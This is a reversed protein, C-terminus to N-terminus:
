KKIIVSENDTIGEKIEIDTDTEIGTKVDKKIIKNDDTKVLVYKTNNDSYVAEIPVTLTNKSESLIIKADGDMGIRYKLDANKDTGPIEFKVQYVTSSEGSIPTFAIYTIKSDIKEDSYSDIKLTAPTGVKIKNVDEQDIKSRFYITEPNIISISANSPTVNVGSVPQEVNTIVGNIPSTLTSYKLAIEQLEYTLISNNLTYQNRKLANRVEDTLLTDEYDKTTDDFKTRTTLFNNADIELQKQLQRQDLGALSQWKKVRDGVKAKIWSLQGSSQFRLEAKEQADISGSITISDAIDQRTVKAITQYKESYKTPITGQTQAKVQNNYIVTSIIAIIIVAIIINRLKFFKKM